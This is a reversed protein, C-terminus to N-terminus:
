VGEQTNGEQLGVEQVGKSASKKPAKKPTAKKSAKKPTAKKSSNKASGKSAPRKTAKKSASAKSGKKPSANLSKAIVDYKFTAYGVDVPASKRVREVRYSREKKKCGRTTERLKVTTSRAKTAKLIENGAKQAARLPAKSHFRGAEKGNRLVVTFTRDDPGM